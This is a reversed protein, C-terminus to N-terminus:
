DDDTGGTVHIVSHRMRMMNGCGVRGDIVQTTRGYGSSSPWAGAQGGKGFPFYLRRWVEVGVRKLHWIGRLIVLVFGGCNPSGFVWLVNDMLQKM